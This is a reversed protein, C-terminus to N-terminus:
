EILSLKSLPYNALTAEVAAMRRSVEEAAAWESEAEAAAGYFQVVGLHQPQFVGVASYLFDVGANYLGRLAAWQKGLLDPDDRTEIPLYSLEKFAVARVRREGNQEALQFWAYHLSGREFRLGSREIQFESASPYPTQM